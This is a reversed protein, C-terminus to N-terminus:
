LSSGDLGPWVKGFIEACSGSREGCQEGGAAESWPQLDGLYALLLASLQQYGSGEASYASSGKPGLLSVDREGQM